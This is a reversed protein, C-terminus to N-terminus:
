QALAFSEDSFGDQLVMQAFEDLEHAGGQAHLLDVLLSRRRDQVDLFGGILELYEVYWRIVPDADIGQEEGGGGPGASPERGSEVNTSKESALQREQGRAVGECREVERVPALARKLRAIVAAHDEAAVEGAHLVRPLEGVCVEQVQM